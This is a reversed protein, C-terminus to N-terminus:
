PMGELLEGLLISFGPMVDGGDLSENERIVRAWGDPRHMVAYRADPYIVWLLPVGVDMFDRVRQQFDGRRKLNTPSYVEAVLDPAFPFIEDGGGALALREDSFWSVDPARLREADYPLELHCWVDPYVAGKGTQVVFAEFRVALKHCLWSHRRKSPMVAELEGDVLEYGNIDDPVPLDPVDVARLRRLNTAM